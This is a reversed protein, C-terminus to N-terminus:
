FSVRILVEVRIRYELHSSYFISVTLLSERAQQTWVDSQQVLRELENWQKELIAQTKKDSHQILRRNADYIRELVAKAQTCQVQDIRHVLPLPQQQQASHHKSKFLLYYGLAM